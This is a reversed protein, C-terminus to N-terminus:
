HGHHKSEARPQMLTRGQQPDHDGEGRPQPNNSCQNGHLFPQKSVVVHGFDKVVDRFIIIFTEQIYIIICALGPVVVSITSRAM